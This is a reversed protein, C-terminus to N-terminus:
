PPRVICVENEPLIGNCFANKCNGQKLLRGDEVEMSLLLRSASGSLVLAYRDERSWIKRELNGLAVIRFKAWVLNGDMELKITFLNMTPIARADEGRKRLYAKYKKTTIETFVNLGTLGDYEEDYAARWIDRDKNSLLLATRLNPRACNNHLNTASVHRGCGFLQRAKDSEWGIDFINEQIQIKWLYQINIVKGESDRTVFEWVNNEDLSLYGQKFVEDHFLIM